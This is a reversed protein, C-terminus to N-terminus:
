QNQRRLLGTLFGAGWPLHMAALALGALLGCPSSHRLAMWLSAGLLVALYVLPWVAGAGVLLPSGILLGAGMVLLGLVLLMLNAAPAVQRLRPAIAHKRLTRARGRGYNWYQRALALPTARMHYDLRLEAALWIRGGSDRLRQDLEADENHSFAPDYGGVRQFWSLDMGAHHGHDVEGSRTGGRHASGGSGLPTDVIWAAARQFCGTGRSDMPVVVSAADEQALRDAVQMAYGPPYLAHADARVLIRHRPRAAERVARNIGASQLREPNALLRLRPYSAALGTVIEPTSDSSGGDAVVLDAEALRPDGHLLSRLCAEIGQAENLTPVVILVERGAVARASM